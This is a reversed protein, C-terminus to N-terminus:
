RRSRTRASHRGSAWAACSTPRATRSRSREGMPGLIPSIRWPQAEVLTVRMGAATAAISLSLGAPGAGVIILDSDM